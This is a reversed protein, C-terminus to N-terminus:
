ATETSNGPSLTELSAAITSALSQLPETEQPAMDQPLMSIAQEYASFAQGEPSSFNVTEPSPDPVMPSRQRLLKSLLLDGKAPEAPLTQGTPQASMSDSNTSKQDPTGLPM